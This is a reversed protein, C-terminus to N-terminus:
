KGEELRINGGTDLEMILKRISIKSIDYLKKKMSEYIEEVHQIEELKDKYM